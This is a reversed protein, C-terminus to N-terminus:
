RWIRMKGNSDFKVSFYNVYEDEDNTGYIDFATATRPPNIAVDTQDWRILLDVFVLGDFKKSPWLYANFRFAGDICAAVTWYFNISYLNEDPPTSSFYHSNKLAKNLFRLEKEAINHVSVVPRWPQILDLSSFDTSFSALNAKNTVQVKVHYRGPASAPMLDYTRVQETYIGNYVFRYRPKSGITCGNRIDEGGLYSFWTFKRSIPHDPELGSNQYTCAGLAVILVVLFAFRIFNLKSRCRYM